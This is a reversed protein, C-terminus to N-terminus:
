PGQRTATGQPPRLNTEPNPPQPYEWYGKDEWDEEASYAFDDVANKSSDVVLPSSALMQMANIKVSTSCPQIYTKKM